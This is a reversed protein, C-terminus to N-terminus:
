RMQQCMRKKFREIKLLRCNQIFTGTSHSTDWDVYVMGDAEPITTAFVGDRDSSWEVVLDTPADLDDTVLATFELADDLIQGEFPTNILITPPQDTEGNLPIQQVPNEVDNSAIILMGRETGARLSLSFQEGVEISIPSPNSTLMWGGTTELDEIELTANGTNELVVTEVHPFHTCVLGADLSAPTVSLEPSEDVAESDGNKFLNYDSCATGLVCFVALWRNTHM